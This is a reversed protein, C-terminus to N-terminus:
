RGLILEGHKPCEVILNTKTPKVQLERKNTKEGCLPCFNFQARHLISICVDDHNNM